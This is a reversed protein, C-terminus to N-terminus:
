RVVFVSIDSHSALYGANSNFVHEYAGPMHTAMVVLDAGLEHAAKDLVDDLDRAPDGATYAKTQISVGLKEAQEGGFAELKKAFEEPTHAVSSPATATVAVFSLTSGFQKAFLGATALAKDLKDKHALDVPVMISKYM